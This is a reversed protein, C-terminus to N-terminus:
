AEARLGEVLRAMGAAVSERDLAGFSIRLACRDTVGFASGPVVAVKHREILRRTLTFADLDTKVRLLVYFAGDTGPAEVLDGLGRLTEHVERRVVDLAAVHPETYPRGVRLAGAAAAQCVLPPCILNTDQIKNVADFLEDPVVMYGIRWSAFGYAKSLSFMSITHPRSAPDSGPSYHQAQGYTFYEYVEDTVHVLGHEACMVNVARLDAEPYVAGTPNNPSITVIARTRPTIARRLAPLDLQYRADTPVGVARCGIMTLAMEHNFYFPVPLIVEDGPDTVALVANLFAMNGGSTVIVRRGTLDLGNERTLKDRLIALLEPQGEVPGYRHEALTSGFSQVAQMAEPPPGYSTIGQGLSITGPNSRIWEGLIPIVPPQIDTIRRPLHM